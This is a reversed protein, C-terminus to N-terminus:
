RRSLVYLTLVASSTVFTRVDHSAHYSTVDISLIHSSAATSDKPRGCAAGSTWRGSSSNQANSAAISLSQAAIKLRRKSFINEHDVQVITRMCMCYSALCMASAHGKSRSRLEMRMRGTCAVAGMFCHCQHDTYILDICIAFRKIPFSWSKLQSNLAAAHSLTLCSPLCSHVIGIM